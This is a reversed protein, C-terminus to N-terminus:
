SCKIPKGHFMPDQKGVRKFSLSQFKQNVPKLRSERLPNDLATAQYFKSELSIKSFLLFLHPMAQGLSEEM